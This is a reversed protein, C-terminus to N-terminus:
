PDVPNPMLYEVGAVPTIFCHASAFNPYPGSRLWFWTDEFRDASSLMVSVAGARNNHPGSNLARKDVAGSARDDWAFRQELDDM